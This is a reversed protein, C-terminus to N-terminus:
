LMGGPLGAVRGDGGDGMAAGYKDAESQGERSPQNAGASNSGEGAGTSRTLARLGAEAEEQLVEVTQETRNFFQSLQPEYRSFLALILVIIVISAALAFRPALVWREALHEWWGPEYSRGRLSHLLRATRVPDEQPAQGLTRATAQRLRQLRTFYAEAEPSTAVLDAVKRMTELDLADDAYRSLLEKLTSDLLERVERLAGSWSRPM